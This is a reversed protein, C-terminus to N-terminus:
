KNENGIDEIFKIPDTTFMYANSNRISIIIEEFNPEMLKGKRDFFLWDNAKGLEIMNKLFVLDKERLDARFSFEKITLFEEDLYIAADNDVYKSYTKWNFSTKDNGWKAREVFLDMKAVISDTQLAAVKWYMEADSEFYGTEVNVGIEKPISGHKCELGKKPVVGLYYQYVAM